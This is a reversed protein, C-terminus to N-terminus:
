LFIAPVGNKRSRLDYGLFRNKWDYDYKTIKEEMTQHNSARFTEFSLSHFERCFLRNRNNESHLKKHSLFWTQFFILTCNWDDFKLTMSSHEILTLSGLSFKQYTTARSVACRKTYKGNFFKMLLNYFNEECLNSYLM